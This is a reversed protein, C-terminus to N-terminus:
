GSSIQSETFVFNFFVCFIFDGGVFSVKIMVLNLFLKGSLDKLKGGTITLDFQENGWSEKRRGERNKGEEGQARGERGM